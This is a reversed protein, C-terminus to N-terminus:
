IQPSKHEQNASPDSSMMGLLASEAKDTVNPEDVLLHIGLKKVQMECEMEEHPLVKVFLEIEDGSKMELEIEDGSKVEVFIHDECVYFISNKSHAMFYKTPNRTKNCFRWGWNDSNRSVEKNSAYVVSLLVKSIQGDVFSPVHFSILSGITQHSFWNPIESGPLCLSCYADAKCMM